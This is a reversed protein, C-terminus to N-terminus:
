ASRLTKVPGHNLWRQVLRPGILNTLEQGDIYIANHNHVHIEGNGMM